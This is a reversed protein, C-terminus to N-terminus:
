TILTLYMILQKVRQNLRTMQEGYFALVAAVFGGLSDVHRPEDTEKNIQERRILEMGIAAKDVM